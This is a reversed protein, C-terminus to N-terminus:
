STCIRPHSWEFKNKLTRRPMSILAGNLSSKYTGKLTGKVNLKLEVFVILIRRAHYFALYEVFM